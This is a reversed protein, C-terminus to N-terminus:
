DEPEPRLLDLFEAFSAAVELYGAYGHFEFLVLGDVTLFFLGSESSAFTIMDTFRYVNFDGDLLSYIASPPAGWFVSLDVTAAQSTGVAVDIAHTVVPASVGYVLVFKRYEVPLPWGLVSEVEDVESATLPWYRKQYVPGGLPELEIKM